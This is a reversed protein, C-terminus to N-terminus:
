DAPFKELLMRRLLPPLRCLDANAGTPERQLSRSLVACCRDQLSEYSRLQRTVSMCTKAATSSLVPYLPEERKDLGEFAVGLSCGDKYFALTGRPGDFLLGVVCSQNEAFPKCVQKCAGDHWALGQHSLGWSNADQGVLNGLFENAHLRADATCLGVQMATGFVRDKFTVEWYHVLGRDLPRGARIAAHGNSWRPHFLVSTPTLLIAEHSRAADDLRWNDACMDRAVSPRRRNAIEHCRQKRLPQGIGTVSRGITAPTATPDEAEDLAASVQAAGRVEDYGFDESADDADAGPRKSCKVLPPGGFAGGTAPPAVETDLKQHQQHQNSVSPSSAAARDLARGLSQEPHRSSM